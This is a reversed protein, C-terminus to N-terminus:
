QRGGDALTEAVLTLVDPDWTLAREWPLNFTDAFFISHVDPFIHATHRPLVRDPVMEALASRRAVLGDHPWLQAPLEHQNFYDGAILTVPIANLVDAHRLNWGADGDLFRQSVQDAGGQSEQEAFAASEQLIKETAANGHADSTALDGTMYDGPLSGTWPTGLTILKRVSIPSDSNADARLAARAFLGGMSHTVLNIDDIGRTERLHLLFKQLAAGAQDIEGVANITLERPLVFPADAFGQWGDDRDVTGPGIRAPATFVDHGVALLHERLATMTNGAALGSAAAQDSTTFPTVAAGGSVLVVANM